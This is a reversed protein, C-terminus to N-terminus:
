YSKSLNELSRIARYRTIVILSPVDLSSRSILFPPVRPLVRFAFLLPSFRDNHAELWRAMLIRAIERKYRPPQEM